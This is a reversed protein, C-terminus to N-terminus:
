LTESFYNGCCLATFQSVQGLLAATPQQGTQPVAGLLVACVVRRHQSDAMSVIIHEAFIERTM